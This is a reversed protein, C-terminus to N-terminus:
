QKKALKWLRSSRRSIMTPMLAPVLDAGHRNVLEDKVREAMCGIVGNILRPRTRPRSRRVSNLCALRALVKQEANDRISCTNLLVADAEELTYVTDYGVTQMISAVVESDAVNM